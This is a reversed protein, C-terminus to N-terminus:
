SYVLDYCIAVGVVIIKEKRATICCFNTTAQKKIAVETRAGM